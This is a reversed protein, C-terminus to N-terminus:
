GAQPVGRGQAPPAPIHSLLEGADLLECVQMNDEPRVDAPFRAGPAGLFHARPGPGRLRPPLLCVLGPVHAAWKQARVEHPCSSTPVGGQAGPQRLRRVAGEGSRTLRTRARRSSYVTSSASCRRRLTADLNSHGRLPVAGRRHPQAAHLAGREGQDTLVRTAQQSFTGREAIRAPSACATATSCGLRASFHCPRPRRGPRDGQGTEFMKKRNDLFRKITRHVPSARRCRPDARGGEGGPDPRLADM